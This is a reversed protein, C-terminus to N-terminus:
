GISPWPSRKEPPMFGRVTPPNSYVIQVYTPTHQGEIVQLRNLAAGHICARNVAGSAPLMECNDGMGM